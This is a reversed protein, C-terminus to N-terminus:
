KTTSREQDSVWHDLEEQFLQRVEPTRMDLNKIVYAGEKCYTIGICTSSYYYVKATATATRPSVLFDYRRDYFGFLGTKRVSLEITNIDSAEDHTDYSAWLRRWKTSGGVERFITRHRTRATAAIERLRTVQAYSLRAFIEVDDSARRKEEGVTRLSASKATMMIKGAQSFASELDYTQAPANRALFASMMLAALISKMM